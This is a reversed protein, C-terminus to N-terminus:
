EKINRRLLSQRSLTGRGNAKILTAFFYLTDSCVEECEEEANDRYFFEKNRCLELEEKIEVLVKNRCLTALQSMNRNNGMDRCLIRYKGSKKRRKKSSNDKKKM